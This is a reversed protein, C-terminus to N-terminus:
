YRSCFGQFTVQRQTYSSHANVQAVSASQEAKVFDATLTQDTNVDYYRIDQYGPRTVPVQHCATQGHGNTVCHTEYDTYQCSQRGYQEPTRTQVTQVNGVLGVEQGYEAATLNFPGNDPLSFNEPTNAEITTKEGNLEDFTVILRNKNEKYNLTVKHNGTPIEYSQGKRDKLHFMERVSLTGSIGGCATLAFGFALSLSVFLRSKM